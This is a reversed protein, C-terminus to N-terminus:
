FSRRAAESAHKLRTRKLPFTTETKSSFPTRTSISATRASKRRISRTFRYRKGSIEFIFEVETPIESAATYLCRVDDRVGGSTEGYLAYTMADLIASKGAGTEGNILFLGGKSLKEFDVSQEKVYSEFAQFRLYVPIM